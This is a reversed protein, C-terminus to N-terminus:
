EAIFYYLFFTLDYNRERWSHYIAKEQKVPVTDADIVLSPVMIILIIIIITITCNNTDTAIHSGRM